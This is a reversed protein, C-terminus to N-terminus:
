CLLYPSRKACIFLTDDRKNLRGHLDCPPFFVLGRLRGTYVLLRHESSCLSYQSIWGMDVTTLLKWGRDTLLFYWLSSDSMTFVWVKNHCVAFLTNGQQKELDHLINQSNQSDAWPATEINIHTQKKAVSSWFESVSQKLFNSLAKISM